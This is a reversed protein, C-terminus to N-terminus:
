TNIFSLIAEEDFGKAGVWYKGDKEILPRKIMGQEKHLWELLEDDTLDKDKLGLKRYTPGKSNTIARIGLQDAIEKLQEM